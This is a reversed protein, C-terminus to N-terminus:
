RIQVIEQDAFDDVIKINPHDKTKNVQGLEFNFIYKKDVIPLLMRDTGTDALVIQVRDKDLAVCLTHYILLSISSTCYLKHYLLEWPNPWSVPTYYDICRSGIPVSAFFQAVNNLLEEDSQGQLSERFERWKEIREEASSSNWDSM